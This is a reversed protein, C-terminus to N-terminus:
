LQHLAAEVAEQSVAIARDIASGDPGGAQALEPDRSGGGGMAAAGPGILEAASMGKEILDKTILGVLAGKEGNTAAVVVVAPGALKDRIGLALDRLENGGM